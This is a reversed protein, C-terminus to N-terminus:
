ISNNFSPDTRPDTVKTIPWTSYVDTKPRVTTHSALASDVDNYVHNANAYPQVAQRLWKQVLSM